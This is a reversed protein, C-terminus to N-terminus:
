LLGPTVIESHPWWKCLWVSGKMIDSNAALDHPTSPFSAECTQTHTHTHTTGVNNATGALVTYVELFGSRRSVCMM